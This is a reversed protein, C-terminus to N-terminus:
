RFFIEGIVGFGKFFIFFYDCGVYGLEVCLRYRFGLVGM